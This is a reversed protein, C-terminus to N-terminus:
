MLVPVKNEKSFGYKSITRNVSVLILNTIFISHLEAPKLTCRDAFDTIFKYIPVFYIILEM